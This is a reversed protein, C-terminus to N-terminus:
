PNANSGASVMPNGPVGGTNGPITLPGFGTQRPNASGAGLRQNVFNDLFKFYGDFTPPYYSGGLGTTVGDLPPTEDHYDKFDQFSFQRAIDMFLKNRQELQDQRMQTQADDRAALTREVARLALPLHQENSLDPFSESLTVIEKAVDGTGFGGKNAFDLVKFFNGQQQRKLNESQYKTLTQAEEARRKASEEALKRNLDANLRINAEANAQRQRAQLANAFVNARQNLQNQQTRQADFAMRASQEAARNMANAQALRRAQLMQGYQGPTDAYLTAM